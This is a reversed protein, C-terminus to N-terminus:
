QEHKSVLDNLKDDDALELWRRPSVGHKNVTDLEAGRNLLEKIIEFRFDKVRKQEPRWALRYEKIAIFLPSSGHSEVENADAGGKTILLLAIESLNHYALALHLANYQRSTKINADAGKSLLYEVIAIQDTSGHFENLADVAKLLISTSTDEDIISNASLQNREIIEIAGDRDAHILAISLERKLEAPVINM